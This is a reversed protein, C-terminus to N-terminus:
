DWNLSSTTVQLATTAAFTSGTHAPGGTHVAGVVIGLGALAPLAATLIRRQVHKM